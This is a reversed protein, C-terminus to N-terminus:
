MCNDRSIFPTSLFLDVLSGKAGLQVNVSCRWGSVFRKCRSQVGESMNQVYRLRRMHVHTVRHAFNAFPVADPLISLM